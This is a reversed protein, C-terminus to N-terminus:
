QQFHEFPRKPPQSAYMTDMGPSNESQSDRGQISIIFAVRSLTGLVPLEESVAVCAAAERYQKFSDKTIRKKWGQELQDQSQLPM